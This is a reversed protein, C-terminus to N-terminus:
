ILTPTSQRPIEVAARPDSGDPDFLLTRQRSSSSGRIETLADGVHVVFGDGILGHDRGIELATLKVEIFDRVRRLGDVTDAKAKMLNQKFSFIDAGSGGTMLDKGKGSVLTDDGAGGVMHDKGKRAFKTMEASAPFRTAELGEASSMTM